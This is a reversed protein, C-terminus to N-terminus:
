VSQLGISQIIPSYQINDVLNICGLSHDPVVTRVVQLAGSTLSLSVPVQLTQTVIKLVRVPSSSHNSM